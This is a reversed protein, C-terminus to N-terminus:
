KEKWNINSDIIKAPSGGVLLNDGDIEKILTEYTDIFLGNAASGTYEKTLESYDLDGGDKQKKFNTIANQYANHNATKDNVDKKLQDLGSLSNVSTKGNALWENYEM